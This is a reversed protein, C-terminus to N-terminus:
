PTVGILRARRLYEGIHCDWLLIIEEDTAGGCKMMVYTLGDMARRRKEVPLEWFTKTGFMERFRLCESRFYDFTFLRVDTM